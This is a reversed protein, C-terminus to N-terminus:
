SKRRAGCISSELLWKLPCTQEDRMNNWHGGMLATVRGRFDARSDVCARTVVLNRALVESWWM